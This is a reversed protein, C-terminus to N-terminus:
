LEGRAGRVVVRGGGKRVVVEAIEELGAEDARGNRAVCAAEPEARIAAVDEREPHQGFLDRAGIEREGSAPFAVDVREHEDVSHAGVFLFRAPEVADERAALRPHGPAALRLRARGALGRAESRVGFADIAAPAEVARFGESGAGAARPPGDEEDVGFTRAARAMGRAVDIM